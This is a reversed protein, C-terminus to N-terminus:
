PRLFVQTFYVTGDDSVAVGIGTHTYAGELINKRHGPSHMWGVVAHDVPDDTRHNSALNEALQSFEIGALRIRDGTGRGEPTEHSLYARVAMDRSHALAVADLDARRDLKGLSHEKRIRNIRKFTEKELKGTDTHLPADEVVVAVFILFGDEAQATGLGISRFEPSRVTDWAQSHGEWRDLVGRVPEVGKIMILRVVAKRFLVYGAEDLAAEIPEKRKLRENKPRAAVLAAREAAIRDLIEVRKFPASGAAERAEQLAELIRDEVTPLNWEKQAWVAGIALVAALSLIGVQKGTKM